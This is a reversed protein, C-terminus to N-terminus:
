GNPGQCKYVVNHRPQISTEGVTDAWPCRVVLTQLYNTKLCTLQLSSRGSVVVSILGGSVFCVDM